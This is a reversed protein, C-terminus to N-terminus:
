KRQLRTFGKRGTCHQQVTHKYQRRLYIAQPIHKGSASGLLREHIHRRHPRPRPLRKHCFLIRRKKLFFGAIMEDGYSPMLIGSSYRSTFPFFGFPLALPLPVDEVVMYSPGAAVYGGPKVRGKTLHMYFYPHDLNDCTTYKGSKMNMFGDAIKKTKDAIIYGEGEQTKAGRIYGKQTKFNFNM